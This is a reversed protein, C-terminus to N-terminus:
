WDIPKESSGPTDPKGAPKEEPARAQMRLFSDQDLTATDGTVRQAVAYDAHVKDVRLTALPPTEVRVGLDTDPDRLEREIRHASLLDGEQLRGQGASVFVRDEGATGLVRLPFLTDMVEGALARAVRPYLIEGVRGPEKEPNIEDEDFAEKLSDPLKRDNFTGARIIERTATNLLRYHIVAHPELTNFEIGMFKRNQEGLSFAEIEGVLLLDAGLEQGQRIQEAPNTSRAVVRDEARTAADFDRDLVRLRGGQAIVNELHRQLQRSVEDGDVQNGVRYKDRSARFPVIVISSLHAREADPGEYELVRAEVDVRWLGDEVKETELVRYGDLGADTPLQVEPASSWQGQALTGSDSERVVWEGVQTRFAPDVTVSVGRAQRVAEVLARTTASTPDPGYGSASVTTDAAHAASCALLVLACLPRYLTM